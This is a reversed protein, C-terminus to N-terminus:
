VGRVFPQPFGELGLPRLMGKSLGLARNDLTNKDM